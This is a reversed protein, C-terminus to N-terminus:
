EPLGLEQPHEIEWCHEHHEVGRFYRLDCPGPDPKVPAVPAATKPASACACLFLVALALARRM